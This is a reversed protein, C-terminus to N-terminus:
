NSRVIITKTARRIIKINRIASTNIGFQTSIDNRKKHKYYFYCDIDDICM